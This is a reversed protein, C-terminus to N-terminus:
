LRIQTSTIQLVQIFGSYVPQFHVGIEKGSRIEEESLWRRNSFTYEMKNRYFESSEAGMIPRIEPLKLHGIRTLQDIVQKAKFKLQESYPLMQWKCGGCVGFYECVPVMRAPSPEVIRLLDGEWYSHRKKIIRVDVTDGPIVMPVFVVRNEHRAIAKGESGISEIKLEHLIPLPTKKL